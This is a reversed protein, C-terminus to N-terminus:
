DTMQERGTWISMKQGWVPIQFTTFHKVMKQNILTSIRLYFCILLHESSQMFSKLHSFVSALICWSDVKRKWLSYNWSLREVKKHYYTHASFIKWSVTRGDLSVLGYQSEKIKLKRFIFIMIMSGVLLHVHKVQMFRQYCETARSNNEM